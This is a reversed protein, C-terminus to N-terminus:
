SPALFACPLRSQHGVHVQRGPGVQAQAPAPPRQGVQKRGRVSAEEGPGMGEWHGTVMGDFGRRKEDASYLSGKQMDSLAQRRVRWDERRGMQEIDNRAGGSCGVVELDRSREM